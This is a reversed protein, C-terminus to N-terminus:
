KKRNLWLQYAAMRRGFPILFWDKEALLRVKAVVTIFVFAGIGVLIATYFVAYLRSFSAVDFCQNLLVITGEITIIMALCAVALKMYFTRGALKILAIKKLYVILAVATFALAINSAIAAGLVGWKVILVTNGIYKIAISLSLFLSPIKLKSYGQLIATFTLIISLPVIQFAYLKLVISLEDTKFLLINVYPM